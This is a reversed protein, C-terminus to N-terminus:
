ITIIAKIRLMFLKNKKIDKFCEIRFSLFFFEMLFSFGPRFPYFHHLYNLLKISKYDKKFVISLILYLVSKDIVSNLLLFSFSVRFQTSGRKPLCFYDGRVNNNFYGLEICLFLIM